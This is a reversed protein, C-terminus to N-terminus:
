HNYLHTKSNKGYQAWFPAAVFFLQLYRKGKFGLGLSKFNPASNVNLHYIQEIFPCVNKECYAFFNFKEGESLGDSLHLFSLESILNM